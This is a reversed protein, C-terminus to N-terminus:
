LRMKGTVLGTTIDWHSQVASIDLATRLAARCCAAESHKVTYIGWAASTM